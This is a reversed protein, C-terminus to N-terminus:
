ASVPKGPVLDKSTIALFAETTVEVLRFGRDRLTGSHCLCSPHVAAFDHEVL